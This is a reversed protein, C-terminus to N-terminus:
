GPKGPGSDAAGESPWDNMTFEFCAGKDNYARVSGAYVEAIKRVIALGIGTGGTRESKQFPLFIKELREPAIGAGNDCVLFVHEGSEAHDLRLVRVRPGSRDSHALANGILNSFVQYIQTPSAVVTGLDDAVEITASREEITSSLDDLVDGVTARVDVGMTDTPALGSEALKLLQKVRESANWANRSIMAAVDLVDTRDTGELLRALVDAAMCVSSIPAKLDHSVSHAFWDLEANISKLELEGRKLDSIDRLTVLKGVSRGKNDALPWIRSDYYRPLPEGEAVYEIEFRGGNQDSGLREALGPLRGLVSAAPQGSIAAASMGVLEAAAPNADVVHGADDVAVMPDHMSEFLVNRAIPRIDLLHYRFIAVALLVATVTFMLPTLDVGKLTNPSLAYIINLVWPVLAALLMIRSQRSFLQSFRYSAWILIAFAAIMLLYSYGVEIWYWPGHAYVGTVGAWTRTLEITPWLLKHISNTAAIVITAVPLVWLVAEIPRTLWDDQQTYHVAFLFFLLPTTPTGLYALVSFIEKAHLTTAAAEFGIFLCWVAIALLLLGFWIVGRESRRRLTYVALAGTILASLFLLIVYANIQM